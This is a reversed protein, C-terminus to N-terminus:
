SSSSHESKFATIDGEGGGGEKGEKECGAGRIKQKETTKGSSQLVIRHEAHYLPTPGDVGDTKLPCLLVM